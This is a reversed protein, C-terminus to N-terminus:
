RCTVVKTRPAAEKAFELSEIWRQYEDRVITYRNDKIGIRDELIYMRLRKVLGGQYQWPIYPNLDVDSTDNAWPIMRYYLAHLTYAGDPPASLRIAFQNTAGAVVYYAVPPGTDTAAEAKLVEWDDEGIYNLGENALGTDSTSLAQAILEFKDFDTPCDYNRTGVVVSFTTTKRRWHLRGIARDLDRFFEPIVLRRHVQKLTNSFDTTALGDQNALSEIEATTM